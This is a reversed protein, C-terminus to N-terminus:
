FDKQQYYKVAGKGTQMVANSIRKTIIVSSRVQRETSYGEQKQDRTLFIEQQYYEVVGRGTRDPGAAPGKSMGAPNPRKKPYMRDDPRKSGLYCCTYLIM